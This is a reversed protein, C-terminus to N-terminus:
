RGANAQVAAAFEEETVWLGRDGYIPYSLITGRAPTGGSQTIQAIWAWNGDSLKVCDLVTMRFEAYPAIYRAGKTFWREPNATRVLVPVRSGVGTYADTYIWEDQTPPAPPETSEPASNLVQSVPTGTSGTTTTDAVYWGGGGTPLFKHQFVKGPQGPVPDGPNLRGFDVTPFERPGVWLYSEATQAAALGPALVLVLALVRTLSSLRTV